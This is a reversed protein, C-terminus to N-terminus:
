SEDEYEAVEEYYSDMWEAMKGAKITESDMEDIDEPWEDGENIGQNILWNDAMEFRCTRGDDCELTVLVMLPEGPMREECGFDSEEIRSVIWSMYFGIQKNLSM